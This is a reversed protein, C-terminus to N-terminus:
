SEISFAIKGFQEGEDMRKFAHYADDLPFVKDVVPRIGHQEVFCLMERFEQASGMTSGLLNYQGYFFARLNFDVEDGATAGFIVLTGGPKLQDLSKQFTARGVSEIVVDVKEGNLQSNWDGETSIVRDAGLALAQERKAPSRSTVYVTAGLAKAMQLLFTAVGSGIGPILVTQGRTVQVRTVLARYATLAALPLVGAETWTLYAPKPEVNEAPVVVTAAFTGHDPFGLIEFGEPPAPSKEPWGLSPNIVVEDGPKVNQVGEGVSEVIGAGDSGLIIPPADPQHRYLVWIDRHNLGASKLRVKVQGPQPQQEEMEMVQLGEWGPAGYHVIAKVM